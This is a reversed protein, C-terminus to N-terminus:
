TNPYEAVFEITLPDAGPQGAARESL